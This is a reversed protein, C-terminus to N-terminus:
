LIERDTMPIGSCPFVGKAEQCNSSVTEFGGSWVCLGAATKMGVVTQLVPKPIRSDMANLTRRAVSPSSASLEARPAPLLLCSIRNPPNTTCSSKQYHAGATSVSTLRAIPGFFFSLFPLFVSSTTTSSDPLGAIGRARKEQQRCMKTSM